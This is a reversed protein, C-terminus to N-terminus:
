LEDFQRLRDDTAQPKSRFLSGQGDTSSQGPPADKDLTPVLRTINLPEHRLLQHSPLDAADSAAAAASSPSLNNGSDDTGGDNNASMVLATLALVVVLVLGWIARLRRRMKIQWERDAREWREVMDGIEDVRGVLSLMRSRGASIREQLSRIRGEQSEFSDLARLQGRIDEELDQADKDFDRAADGSSGALDKLASFTMQVAATKELVAYYTEDLRRTTGTSYAHLQVLAQKLDGSAKYSLEQSFKLDKRAQEKEDKLEKEKAKMQAMAAREKVRKEYSSLGATPRFAKKPAIWHQGNKRMGLKKTPKEVEVAEPAM